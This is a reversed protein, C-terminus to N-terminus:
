TGVLLRNALNEPLGAKRIKDAAAEVDYPVRHLVLRRSDPYYEAFSAMPCRDRPQGVSGPNVLYRSAPDLLLEIETEGSLPIFDVGQANHQYLAPFHTHGFFCLQFTGAQFSQYADFDSFLYADEDVFSGHALWVGPLVELPGRPLKALFEKSEKSLSKATWQAAQRASSNFNDGNEAGVSVKDHNGRVAVFHRLKRLRRVVGNPGAGYGVLDGLCWVAEYHKRLVARFVAELAQENAHIDTFILFRRRAM